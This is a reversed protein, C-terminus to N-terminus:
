LARNARRLHMQDEITEDHEDVVKETCQRALWKMAVEAELADVAEFFDELLRHDGHEDLTVSHVPAVRLNEAIRCHVIKLLTFAVSEESEPVLLIRGFAGNPGNKALPVAVCDSIHQVCCSSTMDFSSGFDFILVIVQERENSKVERMKVEMKGFIFKASLIQTSYLKNIKYLVTIETM